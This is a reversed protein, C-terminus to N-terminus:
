NKREGRFHNKTAKKPPRFISKRPRGSIELPKQNWNEALQACRAEILMSSSLKGVRSWIHYYHKNSHNLMKALARGYMLAVSKHWSSRRFLVWLFSLLADAVIYGFAVHHVHFWWKRCLTLWLVRSMQRLCWHSLISLWTLGVKCCLQMRFIKGQSTSRLFVFYLQCILKLPKTAVSFTM